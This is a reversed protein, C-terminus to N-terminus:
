LPRLFVLVETGFYSFCISTFYNDLYLTCPFEVDKPFLAGLQAVMSGLDTLDPHSQLEGTGHPRSAYMFNSMYGRESLAWMQYGQKISKSPMKVTNQSRGHSSIM